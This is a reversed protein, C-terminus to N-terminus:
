GRGASAAAASGTGYVGGVPGIKPTGALAPPVGACCNTNWRATVADKRAATGPEVTHTDINEQSASRTSTCDSEM